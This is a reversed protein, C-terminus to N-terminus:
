DRTVVHLLRASRGVDLQRVRQGVTQLIQTGSDIGTHRDIGERRTQREEPSDTHVVEHLDGLHTGCTHQPSLDYLLEVGLVGLRHRQTRVALRRSPRERLLIGEVVNCTRGDLSHTGSQTMRLRQVRVSQVLSDRKRGVERCTNRTVRLDVQLLLGVDAAVDIRPGTRVIYLREGVLDCVLCPLVNLLDLLQATHGLSDLRTNGLHTDLLSRCTRLGADVRALLLDDAQVLETQLLLCRDIDKGNIIRGYALTLYLTQLLQACRAILSGHVLSQGGNGLTPM